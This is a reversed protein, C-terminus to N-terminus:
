LISLTFVNPNFDAGTPDGGLSDNIGIYFNQTSLNVPGCVIECHKKWTQLLRSHTDM